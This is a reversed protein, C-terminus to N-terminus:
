RAIPGYAAEALATGYRRRVLERALDDDGIGPHAARIGAITLQEVAATMEICRQFREGLSMGRLRQIVLARIEDTTDDAVGTTAM